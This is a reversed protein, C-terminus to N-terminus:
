TVPFATPYDGSPGIDTVMIWAVQTASAILSVNGAGVDGRVLTFVITATLDSGATRVVIRKGYFPINGAATAAFHVMFWDVYSTGTSNTKRVHPRITAPTVSSSLLCQVEIAYARGNVFPVNSATLVTTETTTISGSNADTSGFAVRGIAIQDGSAASLVNPAVRGIIADVTGSGSGWRMEGGSTVLMRAVTDGTQQVNLAPAVGTRTVTLSGGYASTGAISATGAVTLNNFYGDNSGAVTGIAGLIVYGTGVPALVVRAGAAPRSGIYAYTKSSMVSEGDFTVKPLGSGFAPDVTGIKLPKDTSAAGADPTIAQLLQAANPISV